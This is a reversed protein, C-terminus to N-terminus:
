SADTGAEPPRSRRIVVITVAICLLLGLISERDGFVGDVVNFALFGAVSTLVGALLRM